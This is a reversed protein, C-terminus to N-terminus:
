FDPIESPHFTISATSLPAALFYGLAMPGSFLRPGTSDAGIAELYDHMERSIPAVTVTLVDGDVLVTDDEEESTDKRTTMFVENIEGDYVMNGSVARWMYAEDNRYVRIWYCQEPEAAFRTQLVAVRDYPMEIWALTLEPTAAAPPMLCEETNAETTGPRTVSLLYRHGEIGGQPSVYPAEPSTGSPILDVTTGDTLDTLRVAAGAVQRRNMPEDMPTTETLSVTAGDQTVAGEIVLIPEIDRYKFDIEKECGALLLAAAPLLKLLRSRM